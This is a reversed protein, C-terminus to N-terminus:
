RATGSEPTFTKVVRNDYKRENRSFIGNKTSGNNIDAQSHGVVWLVLFVGTIVLAIIFWFWWRRIFTKKPQITDRQNM